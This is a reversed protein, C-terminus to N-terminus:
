GEKDKKEQLKKIKNYRAKISAKLSLQMTKIENKLDEVRKIRRNLQRYFVKASPSNPDFDKYCECSKVFDQAERLKNKAINLEYKLAKITARTEAYTCGAFESAGTEDEPNFKADGVFKKGLHQIIVTSSGNERNYHSEIFKM